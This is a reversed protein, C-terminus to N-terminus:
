PTYVVRCDEEFCCREGRNCTLVLHTRKELGKREISTCVDPVPLPREFANPEDQLLLSILDMSTKAVDLDLHYVLCRWHDGDSCQTTQMSDSHCVSMLPSKIWQSWASRRHKWLLHTRTWCSLCFQGSVYKNKAQWHITPCVLSGWSITFQHREPCMALSLIFSVCM